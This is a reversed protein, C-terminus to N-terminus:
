ALRVLQRRDDATMVEGIEELWRHADNRYGATPKIEQGLATLRATGWHQNFRLMALERVFKAVMSALAVPMHASEGEVLFSLGARRERGLTDRGTIAYLSKSESEEVIDVRCNDLERAILASYQARGGLRDCVIGIRTEPDERSFIDWVTRLHRGFATATTEAKNGTDNIIQNYQVEDIIECRLAVLEVSAISMAAGLVNAAILIEPATLVLPLPRAPVAYCPHASLLSGLRSFLAADDAPLDRPEQGMCRCFTLVGRELHVLPHTTTVSNALKLEKSDAVAVRGRRDHAGGRAPAKCVGRSLRKWLDPLKTPDPMGRVRFVSLGVCLPGLLPGYGAEDIGAILVDM